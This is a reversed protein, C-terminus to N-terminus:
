KHYKRWIVTDLVALNKAPYNPNQRLSERLKKALDFYRAGESSRRPQAMAPQVVGVWLCAASVAFFLMNLVTSSIIVAIKPISM